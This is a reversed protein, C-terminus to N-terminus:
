RRTLDYVFIYFVLVVGIPSCPFSVLFLDFGLFMISDDTFFEHACIHLLAYKLFNFIAAEVNELRKKFGLWTLSSSYALRTSKATAVLSLM